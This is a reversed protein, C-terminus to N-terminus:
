PNRGSTLGAAFGAYKVQVTGGQEELKKKM